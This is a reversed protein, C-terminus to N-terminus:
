HILNCYLIYLISSFNLDRFGTGRCQGIFCSKALADTFKVNTFGNSLRWRQYSIVLMECLHNRLERQSEENKNSKWSVVSQENEEQRHPWQKEDWQQNRWNGQRTFGPYRIAWDKPTINQKCAIWKNIEYLRHSESVNIWQCIDFAYIWDWIKGSTQENFFERSLM